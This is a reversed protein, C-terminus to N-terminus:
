PHIEQTVRLVVRLWWPVQIFASFFFTEQRLSTVMQQQQQTVITQLNSFLVGTLAKEGHFLYFVQIASNLSRITRVNFVRTCKARKKLGREFKLGDRNNIYKWKGIMSHYMDNNVYVPGLEQQYMLLLSPTYFWYGFMTMFQRKNFWLFSVCYIKV